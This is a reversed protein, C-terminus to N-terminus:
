CPKHGARYEEVEVEFKHGGCGRARLQACGGALINDRCAGQVFTAEVREVRTRGDVADAEVRNGGEAKGDCCVRPSAV